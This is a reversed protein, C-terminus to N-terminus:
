IYGDRIKSEVDSKSIYFSLVLVLSEMQVKGGCEFMADTFLAAEILTNTMTDINEETASMKVLLIMIFFYSNLKTLESLSVRFNAENLHSKRIEASTNVRM